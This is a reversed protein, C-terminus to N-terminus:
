CGRVYRAKNIDKDTIKKRFLAAVNVGTPLRQFVVASSIDASNCVFCDSKNLISVM